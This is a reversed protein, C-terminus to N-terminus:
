AIYQGAKNNFYRQYPDHVYTGLEENCTQCANGM